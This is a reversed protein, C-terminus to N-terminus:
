GTASLKYLFIDRLSRSRAGKDLVCPSKSQLGGGNRRWRPPAISDPRGQGTRSLLHWKKRKAERERMAEWFVKPLGEIYFHMYRLEGARTAQPNALDVPLKGNGIPYHLWAYGHPLRRTCNMLARKGLRAPSLVLLALMDRM